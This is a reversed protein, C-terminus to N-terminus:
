TIYKWNYSRYITSRWDPTDDPTFYHLLYPNYVVCTSLTLYDVEL